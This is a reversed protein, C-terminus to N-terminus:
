TQTVKVVTVDSQVQDQEEDDVEDGVEELDALLEDALSMKSSAVRSVIRFLAGGVGQPRLICTM